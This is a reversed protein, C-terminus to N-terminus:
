WRVQARKHLEQNRSVQMNFEKNAVAEAKSARIQGIQAPVPLPVDEAREEEAPPEWEDSLLGGPGSINCPPGVEERIQASTDPWEGTPCEKVTDAGLVLAFLEKALKEPPAVPKGKAPVPEPELGGNQEVARYAALKVAHAELDPGDEGQDRHQGELRAKLTEDDTNLWVVSSPTFCPKLVPPPPLEGEPVTPDPDVLECFLAKVQSSTAPYGDLVWGHTLCTHESLKTEFMAQLVPNPVAEPATEAHEAWEERTASMEIVVSKADMVPVRYYRGLEAAVRSVGSQPPGGVVIRRPELGAALKFEQAMQPMSEIIGHECHWSGKLLTRIAAPEMALNVQLLEHHAIMFTSDQSMTEMEGVGLETSVQTLVDRLTQRGADVALIHVVGLVAEPPDLLALVAQTLDESHICPIQNSGESDIAPIRVPKGEWAEEFAVKFLGQDWGYTLGANLVHTRLAPSNLRCMHKELQLLETHNPHPKRRTYEEECLVEGQDVETQEWSLVSSVSILVRQRQEQDEGESARAAEGLIDAIEKCEAVHGSLTCIVVDTQQVTCTFAEDTVSQVDVVTVSVPLDLKSLGFKGRPWNFVTIDGVAPATVDDVRQQGAILKDIIQKGLVDDAVAASVLVSRGKPPDPAPERGESMEEPDAPDEGGAEEAPADEAAEATDVPPDQEAGM